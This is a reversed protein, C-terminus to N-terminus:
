EGWEVAYDYYIQRNKQDPDIRYLEMLGEYYTGRTWINSPRQINTFIPKGPDPWKEMFYNNTLRMVDLVSKQSPIKASQKKVACGSMVVILGLLCLRSLNTKKM